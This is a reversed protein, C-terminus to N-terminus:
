KSSGDAGCQQETLREFPSVILPRSEFYEIDAFKRDFCGDETRYEVIGDKVSSVFVRMYHQAHQMHYLCWKGVFESANEETLKVCEKKM